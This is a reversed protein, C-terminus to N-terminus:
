DIVEIIGDTTFSELISACDEPTADHHAAQREFESPTVPRALLALVRALEPNLRELRPDPHRSDILIGETGPQQEPSPTEICPDLARVAVEGQRLIALTNAFHDVTGLQLELVEVSPHLAIGPTDRTLGAEHARRTRALSAELQLMNNDAGNTAFWKAFLTALSDGAQMGKHFTDSSFFQDLNATAADHNRAFIAVSVAFEEVLAALSRTRRLPDVKWARQDPQNLWNREQKTLDCDKTAAHSNQYVREIFAADYLMRVAVRQLALATM